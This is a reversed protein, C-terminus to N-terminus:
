QHPKRPPPLEILRRIEAILRRFNEAAHVSLDGHPGAERELWQELKQLEDESMHPITAHTDDDAFANHLPDSTSRALKVTKPGVDTDAPLTIALNHRTNCVCIPVAGVALAM